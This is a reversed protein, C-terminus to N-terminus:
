GLIFLYIIHFLINLQFRFYYQFESLNYKSLLYMEKIREFQIRKFQSREFPLAGGSAYPVQLHVCSMVM